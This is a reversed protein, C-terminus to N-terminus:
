DPRVGVFVVAGEEVESHTFPLVSPEFGAEQLVALWDSTAFLGEEHRDHRVDVSGDEHRLLLAYDVLYSTDDPEPDWTWALYRLSRAPGDHGGHETSARFSERVHDPAFVAAGGPACHLFATEAVSRVDALTTAYCIADHVFVGDYHRELRMFRMDAVQHECEPNLSRSVEIMGPSRDVLTLEFHAKMHSANNGGGSGLELVSRVPRTAHERLARTFFTAEEAYDAPASLLPWWPALEDYLLLGDTM